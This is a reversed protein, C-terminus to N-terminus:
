NLLDKFMEEWKSAIKKVNYSNIMDFRAKEGMNKRALKDMNIFNNISSILQDINNTDILIGNENSILDKPGTRCSTSICPLGLAMAEMLSNPQGEFDSTLLYADYKILEYLINESWGRLNIVGDLKNNYIYEQLMCKMDGEGFIDLTVDLNCSHIKSIADIALKYNKQNVLRGVMVFKKCIDNHYEKKVSNLFLDDLPNPIVYLNRWGYNKALELQEKNQLVVANSHKFWFRNISSFLGKANQIKEPSVRASAVCPINMGFSSFYLAYGAQLFGIAVDPKVMKLIRRIFFLRKIHSFHNYEEINECMYIVKVKESVQYDKKSKSFVYLTVNHGDEAIQSSIRAIVRQAGGDCLDGSLFLINM